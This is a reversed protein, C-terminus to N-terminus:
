SEKWSYETFGHDCITNHLYEPDMHTSQTKAAWEQMSVGKIHSVKYQIRDCFKGDNKQGFRQQHINLDNYNQTAPCLPLIISSATTRVHLYM